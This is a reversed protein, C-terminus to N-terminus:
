SFDFPPLDAPPPSRPRMISVLNSASVKLWLVPKINQSTEMPMWSESLSGNAVSLIAGMQYKQFKPGPVKLETGRDSRITKIKINSQHQLRIVLDEVHRLTDSKRALPVIARVKTFDAIMILAYENGKVSPQLRGTLDVHVMESDASGRPSGGNRSQRTSSAQQCALCDSLKFDDNKLTAFDYALNGGEALDLLDDRGIHGLRRREIYLPSEAQHVANLGDTPIILGSVPAVIMAQPRKASFNSWLFASIITM